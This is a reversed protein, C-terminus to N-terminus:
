TNINVIYVIGDFLIKYAQDHNIKQSFICVPIFFCKEHNKAKKNGKEKKKKDKSPCLIKNLNQYKNNLCFFDKNDKINQSVELEYSNHSHITHHTIHPTGSKFKTLDQSTSVIPSRFHVIIQQKELGGIFGITFQDKEILLSLEHM